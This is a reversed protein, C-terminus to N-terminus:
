YREKKKDKSKDDRDQNTIIEVNKKAQELEKQEHKLSDMKASLDIRTSELESVEKRLLALKVTEGASIKRKLFEQSSEYIM